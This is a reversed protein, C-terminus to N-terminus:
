LIAFNRHWNLSFRPFIQFFIHRVVGANTLSKDAKPPHVVLNHCLLRSTTSPLILHLGTVANKTALADRGQTALGDQGRKTLTHHAEVGFHLPLIGEGWFAM